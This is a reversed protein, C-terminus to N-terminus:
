FSPLRIDVDKKSPFIGAQVKDVPTLFLSERDCVSVCM